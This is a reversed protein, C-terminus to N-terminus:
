LIETEPQNNWEERIDNMYDYVRKRIRKQNKESHKQIQQNPLGRVYYLDIFDDVFEAPSKEELWM